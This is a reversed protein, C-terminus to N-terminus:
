NNRYEKPSVGVHRKFYKGFFSQSSFNLEDSIQQIAMNTSKLFAKAELIIYSDIWDNASMGSKEKIVKSLHKPTLCLKDAYFEVVRQEKFYKQVLKLFNEMLIEHKSLEKDQTINHFQYGTIYFFAKILSKVVEIRYPNDVNRISTRLMEYYVLLINLEDNSLTIFPNNHVSLFLPFSKDFNVNNIFQRSMVVFLGSFDDSFYEYELIQDPLIIIFCPSTAYYSKHNIKVKAIGKTCIIGTVVDAKFPCNYEMGNIPYELLFFDNNLSDEKGLNNIDPGWNLGIVNKM